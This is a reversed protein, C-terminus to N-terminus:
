SVGLATLVLLSVFLTAMAGLLAYRRQEEFNPYSSYYIQPETAYNNLIGDENTTTYM